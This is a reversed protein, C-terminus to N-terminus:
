SKVIRETLEIIWFHKNNGMSQSLFGIRAIPGRAVLRSDPRSSGKACARIGTQRGTLLPLNVM